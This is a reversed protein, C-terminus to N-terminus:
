GKELGEIDKLDGEKNSGGSIWIGEHYEIAAPSNRAKLMSPYKHVGIKKDKLIAVHQIEKM